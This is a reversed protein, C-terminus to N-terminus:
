VFLLKGLLTNFSQVHLSVSHMQWVYFGPTFPGVKSIVTTKCPVSFACHKQVLVTKIVRKPFAVVDKQKTCLKTSHLKRECETCRFCIRHNKRTYIAFEAVNSINNWFPAHDHHPSGQMLPVCVSDYPTRAIVVHWAIWIPQHQKAATFYCLILLVRVIGTVTLPFLGFTSFYLQYQSAEHTFIFSSIIKPQYKSM